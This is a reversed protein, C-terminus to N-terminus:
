LTWHLRHLLIIFFAFAFKYALMMNSSGLFSQFDIFLLRWLNGAGEKGSFKDSLVIQSFNEFKKTSLVFKNNAWFEWVIIFESVHM